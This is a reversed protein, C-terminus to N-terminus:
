DLVQPGGAYLYGLLEASDYAQATCEGPDDTVLTDHTDPHTCRYLAWPAEIQDTSSIYGARRPRYGADRCADRPDDDAVGSTVMMTHSDDRGECIYLEEFGRETMRRRSGDLLFGLTHEKTFSADFHSETECDDTGTDYCHVQSMMHRVLPVFEITQGYDALSDDVAAYLPLGVVLALLTAFAGGGFVVSRKRM